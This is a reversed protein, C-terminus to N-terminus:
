DSYPMVESVIKTIKNRWGREVQIIEIGQSGAESGQGLRRYVIQTTVPSTNYIFADQLSYVANPALLACLWMEHIIGSSLLVSNLSISDSMPVGVLNYFENIVDSM